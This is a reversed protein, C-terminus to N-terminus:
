DHIWKKFFDVTSTVGGSLLDFSYEAFKEGAKSSASSVFHHLSTKLITDFDVISSDIKKIKDFIEKQENDSLVKKLIIEFAKGDIKIIDKNFSYDVIVGDQRMLNEFMSKFLPNELQLVIKGSSNELKLIKLSKKLESVFWEEGFIVDERLQMENYLTKVKSEPIKLLKSLEFKNYNILENRDKLILKFILLEMEKKSMSGFAYRSFEKIFEDTFTNKNNIQIM